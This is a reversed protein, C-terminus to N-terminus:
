LFFGIARLQERGDESIMDLTWPPMWVWNIRVSSTVESLLFCVDAELKDTLPCTPSTLTMDVVAAGDCDIDVGYVLGLDVINVGLEPDLVDKLVEIVEPPTAWRAQTGEGNTLESM